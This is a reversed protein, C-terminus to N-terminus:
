QTSEHYQRFTADPTNTFVLDRTPRVSELPPRPFTAEPRANM